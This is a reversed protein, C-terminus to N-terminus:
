RASREAADRRAADRAARARDLEIARLEDLVLTVTARIQETQARGDPKPELFSGTRRLCNELMELCRNIKTEDSTSM